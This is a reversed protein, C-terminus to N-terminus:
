EVKSLKIKISSFYIAALVIAIDAVWPSKAYDLLSTLLLLILGFVALYGVFWVMMHEDDRRITKGCLACAGKNTNKDIGLKTSFPYYFKNCYPCRMM